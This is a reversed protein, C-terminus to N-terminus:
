GHNHMGWRSKNKGVLIHLLNVLQEDKSIDRFPDIIQGEDFDVEYIIIPEKVM